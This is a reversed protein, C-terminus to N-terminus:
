CGDSIDEESMSEYGADEGMGIIHKTISLCRAVMKRKSEKDLGSEESDPGGIWIRLNGALKELQSSCSLAVQEHKHIREMLNFAATFGLLTLNTPVVSQIIRHAAVPNQPSPFRDLHAIAMACRLSMNVDPLNTTCTSTNILTPSTENEDEPEFPGLAQLASAINAGRKEKVLVARAVLARIQARSGTPAVKIALAIDSVISNQSEADDKTDLSRTLIRQLVMSSYWAALGDLPSRIAFDDIVGDMGDRPGQVNRVTPLHWALNYARQVIGDTLVDDCEEELLAALYEPFEIEQKDRTHAMLQKLQKAENWKWRALKAAVEHFMSFGNFGAKGVEWLLVRIHLAKLMLRAPTDPLTGSALLTLTLRSKSVDVDGGALQADLAIEWAKVRAAEQQPTIGTLYTYSSPGIVNRMGLKAIKLCLAAAELFFNHRPVWVTQVATLWARRRVQISSALSPVAALSTGQAKNDKPKPTPAFLSPLFVYLLAGLALFLKIYTLTQAAPVHYGLVSIDFSSHAAQSLSRLMQVPLSFLGRGSPTDASQETESFGEMIMLGALSGVMLRGFYGGGNQWGNPGVPQRQQQFQEQAVPYTQQSSQGHLRRMSEPVRIMGQPDVAGSRGPTQYDRPYQFPNTIPPAPTFGMSGSRFLTEFAALRAKQVMNEEQLRKNRKELHNIYETAKSLVTAKNLKHAPTLGQLEERDDATDEGRASKTMIRLSPVSDRLAAIKDNLNTRYRKEIMNHATKKVPPHKAAGDEDEDDASVSSKRKRSNDNTEPSSISPSKYSPTSEPSHSSAGQYRLHQPMAINRLKEQQAPTLTDMTMYTQAPPIPEFKPPEPPDWSLPTSYLNGEYPPTEQQEWDAAFLPNDDLTDTFAVPADDFDNPSDQLSDKLSDNLSDFGTSIGSLTSPDVCTKSAM